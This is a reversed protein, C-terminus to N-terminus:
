HFDRLCSSPFCRASACLNWKIPLSHSSVVWSRSFIFLQKMSTPPWLSEPFIGQIGLLLNSLTDTPSTFTRSRLILWLFDVLLLSKGDQIDLVVKSSMHMGTASIMFHISSVFTQGSTHFIASILGSLFTFFGVLFHFYALRVAEDYLFTASSIFNCHRFDPM